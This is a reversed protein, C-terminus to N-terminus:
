IISRIRGQLTKLGAIITDFTPPDEDYIMQERMAAYDNRYDGIVKDNPIFAIKTHIMGPYSIWSIRSYRERHQLLRDFLEHDSLVENLIATNSIKYLDYLHRSMRQSRIKSTDPKSFEEHLLFIKEIFTKRPEAIDVEFPTENYYSRFNIKNLLSQLALKSFPMRASRVSVQVKVEDALYANGGYLSKYRVFM